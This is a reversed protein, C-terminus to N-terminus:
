DIACSAESYERLATSTFAELTSFSTAAREKECVTIVRTHQTNYSTCGWLGLIIALVVLIGVGIGTSSSSSRTPYMDEKEETLMKSIQQAFLSFESRVFRPILVPGM